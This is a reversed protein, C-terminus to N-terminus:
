KTFREQATALSCLANAANLAAQSYKMADGAKDGSNAEAAKAILAKVHKFQDEM